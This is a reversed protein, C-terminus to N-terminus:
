PFISKYKSTGWYGGFDTKQLSLKLAIVFHTPLHVFSTRTDICHILMTAVIRVCEYIYDGRIKEPSTRVSASPLSLMELRFVDYNFIGTTNEEIMSNILNRLSRVIQLTYVSCKSSKKISYFDERPCYVPSEPLLEDEAFVRSPQCFASVFGPDIPQALTAARSM